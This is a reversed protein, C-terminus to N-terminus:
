RNKGDLEEKKRIVSMRLSEFAIELCEQRAKDCADENWGLEKAVKYIWDGMEKLVSEALTKTIITEGHSRLEIRAMLEKLFLKLVDSMGYFSQKKLEIAADKAKM